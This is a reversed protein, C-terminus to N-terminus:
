VTAAVSDATAAALSEALAQRVLEMGAGTAASVWIRAITGYENREVRPQAGSIDIKNMVLIQPIAAAGIEALM